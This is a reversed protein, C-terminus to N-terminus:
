EVTEACLISWIQWAHKLLVTAVMLVVCESHVVYASVCRTSPAIDEADLIMCFKYFHPQSTNYQYESWGLILVYRPAVAHYFNIVAVEITSRPNSAQLTPLLKIASVMCLIVCLVDLPM